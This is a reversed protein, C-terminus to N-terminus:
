FLRVANSRQPQSKKVGGPNAPANGMFPMWIFHVSRFFDLRLAIQPMSEGSMLKPLRIRYRFLEFFLKNRL